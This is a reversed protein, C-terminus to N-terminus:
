RLSDPLKPCTKLRRKPATKVPDLLRTAPPLIIAPFMTPLPTGGNCSWHIPTCSLKYCYWDVVKVNSPGDRMRYRLALHLASPIQYLRSIPRFGLEGYAWRLVKIGKSTLLRLYAGFESQSPIRSKFIRWGGWVAGQQVFEQLVCYNLSERTISIWTKRFHCSQYTELNRSELNKRPFFIRNPEYGPHFTFGLQSPFCYQSCCKGYKEKIRGKGSLSVRDSHISGKEHAFTTSKPWCTYQM